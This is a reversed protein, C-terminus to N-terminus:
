LKQSPSVLSRGCSAGRELNMVGGPESVEFLSTARAGGNTGGDSKTGLGFSQLPIELSRGCSAGRELSM